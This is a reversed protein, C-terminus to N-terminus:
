SEHLLKQFIELDRFFPPGDSNLFILHFSDIEEGYIFGTTEQYRKLRDIFSPASHLAIVENIYQICKNMRKHCMKNIINQYNCNLYNSMSELLESMQLNSIENGDFPCSGHLIIYTDICDSCIKHQCQAFTAFNKKNILSCCILCKDIDIENIDPRAIRYIDGNNSLYSIASGTFEKKKYSLDQIMMMM